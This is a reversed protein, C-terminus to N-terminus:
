AIADMTRQMIAAKEPQFKALFEARFTDLGSKLNM